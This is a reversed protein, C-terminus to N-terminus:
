SHIEITYGIFFSIMDEDGYQYVIKAGAVMLPSKQYIILQAWSHGRQFFPSIQLIFGVGQIFDIQQIMTRFSSNKAISPDCIM